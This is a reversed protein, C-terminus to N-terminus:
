STKSSYKVLLSELGVVEDIRGTKVKEEYDCFDDLAAKLTKKSFNKTFPLNVKVRAEKINLKGAIQAPSLGSEKLCSIQYIINFQNSLLYLIRMPQEREALLDNFIKLVKKVNKEMMNNTIAFVVTNLNKVCLKDIDDKSIDKKDDVYACLKDIENILNEMNTSVCEILYNAIAPSINCNKEAVKMQVWKCLVSEDQADLKCIYGEKQIRKVLRSRLDVDEEVFVIVVEEIKKDLIKELPHESKKDKDAGEDDKKKAKFAKSNDIVILRKDAFFPMTVVMDELEEYNLDGEFYSYNMGDDGVIADKLKNKYQNKLYAEEGYLLYIGEFSSNKIDENIKKM